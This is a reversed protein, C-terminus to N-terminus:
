ENMREDTRVCQHTIAKRKIYPFLGSKEKWVRIRLFFLFNSFVIKVRGDNDTSYYLSIIMM